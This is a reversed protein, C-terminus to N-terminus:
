LKMPRFYGVLELYGRGLMLGASHLEVAGEWYVSGTSRRADLEQDEMLPLIDYDQAASGTGLRLRLHTPYVTGTHPSRWTSLPEFRVADGVFSRERGDATRLRAASWLTRGADRARIRFVMLAGGDALNIGIWDWGAAAPDLVTSSWEHDLWARGHAPQWNGDTAIRGRVALQPRSYYYSAQEAVPGKRSYGGEGQLLLPQTPTCRVDLRLNEGDIRALYEDQASRQFSWGELRLDTDELSFSTHPDGRVVRAARQDHRLKGQAPRAIAAHAFLLQHPAFRSPNAPDHPTRSRFFTIQFGTSAGGEELWGTLYWWETRFEPHAGHDRPFRLSRPVVVPFEPAAALLPPSRWPLGGLLLWQLCQRRHM